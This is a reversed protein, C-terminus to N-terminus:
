TESTQPRVSEGRNWKILARRCLRGLAPQVKQSGHTNSSSSSLFNVHLCNFKNLIQFTTASKLECNKSVNRYVYTLVGWM